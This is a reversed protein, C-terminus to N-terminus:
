KEKPLYIVLIGFENVQGIKEYKIYLKWNKMGNEM